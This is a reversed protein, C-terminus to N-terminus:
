QTRGNRSSGSGNHIYTPSTGTRGAANARSELLEQIWDLPTNDFNFNWVEYLADSSSLGFILRCQVLATKEFKKQRHFGKGSQFM